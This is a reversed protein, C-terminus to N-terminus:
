DVPSNSLKMLLYLHGVIELFHLLVNNSGRGTQPSYGETCLWSFQPSTTLVAAGPKRPSQVKRAGFSCANTDAQCGHATSQGGM